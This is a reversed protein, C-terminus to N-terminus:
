RALDIGGITSPHRSPVPLFLDVRPYRFNRIRRLDAAVQM